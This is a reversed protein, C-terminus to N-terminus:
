AMSHVPSAMTDLGSIDLNKSIPMHLKRAFELSVVNVQAGSDLLALTDTGELEVRVVPCGVACLDAEFGSKARPLRATAVRVEAGDEATSGEWAPSRFMLKRVDPSM